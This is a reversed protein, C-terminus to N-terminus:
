GARISRLPKPTWRGSSRFEWAKRLSAAPRWSQRRGKRPGAGTAAWPRCSLPSFGTKELYRLCRDVVVPLNDIHRSGVAVAVRANKRSKPLEPLSRLCRDVAEPVQSIGVDASQQRIYAM